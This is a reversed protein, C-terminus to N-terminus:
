DGDPVGWWVRCPRGNSGIRAGVPEILGKRYAASFAAGLQHPDTPEGVMEVVHSADFGLSRRGLQAIALAAEISWCDDSASEIVAAFGSTPYRRVHHNHHDTAPGFPMQAPTKAPRWGRDDGPPSEAASALEHKM